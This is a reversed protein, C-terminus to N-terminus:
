AAGGIQPADALVSSALTVLTARHCNAEALIARAEIIRDQRWRDFGTATTSHQIPCPTTMALNTM